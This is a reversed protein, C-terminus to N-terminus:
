CETGRLFAAECIVALFCLMMMRNRLRSGTFPWQLPVRYTMSLRCSWMMSAVIAESGWAPFRINMGLIGIIGESLMKGKWMFLFCNGTRGAKAMM